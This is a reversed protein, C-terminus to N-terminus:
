HYLKVRKNHNLNLKLNLDNIPQFTAAKTM